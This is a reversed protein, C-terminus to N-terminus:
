LSEVSRRTLSSQAALATLLRCWSRVIRPPTALQEVQTTHERIAAVLEDNVSEIDAVLQELQTQSTKFPPLSWPERRAQM